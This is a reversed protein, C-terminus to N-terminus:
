VKLRGTRILWKFHQFGIHILRFHWLLLDKHSPTLNQNANKKACVASALAKFEKQRHNPPTAEHTPLNKKSNYKVYIKDVTKAKQWGPKDEKLNLEAYSDHEYHCHAIFTGM